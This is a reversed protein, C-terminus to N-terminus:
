PLSGLIFCISAIIICAVIGEAILAVRAGEIFDGEHDFHTM